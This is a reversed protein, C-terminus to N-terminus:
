KGPMDRKPFVHQVVVLLAALINVTAGSVLALIVSDALRFRHACLTIRFGQLLLFAVIVLLWAANAGLIIKAYRPRQEMDAEIAKLLARKQARDLDAAEEAEAAKGESEPGPVPGIKSLDTWNPM